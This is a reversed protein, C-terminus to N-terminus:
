SPQWEYAHDDHSISPSWEPPSNVVCRQPTPTPATDKTQPNHVVINNEQNEYRRTSLTLLTDDIEVVVDRKTIESQLTM